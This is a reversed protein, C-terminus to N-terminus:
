QRSAFTSEPPMLDRAKRPLNGTYSKRHIQRWCALASMSPQNLVRDSSEYRYVSTDGCVGGYARNWPLQEPFGVASM